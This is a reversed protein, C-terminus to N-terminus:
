KNIYIIKFICPLFVQSIYKPGHMCTLTKVSELLQTKMVRGVHFIPMFVHDHKIHRVVASLVLSSCISSFLGDSSFFLLSSPSM